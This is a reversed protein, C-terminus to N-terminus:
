CCSRVIKDKIYPRVNSVSRRRRRKNNDSFTILAPTLGIFFIEDLFVIKRLKLKSKAIANYTDFNFYYM